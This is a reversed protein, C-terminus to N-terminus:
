RVNVATRGDEYFRLRNQGYNILSDRSRRWTAGAPPMFGLQRAPQVPMFGVM